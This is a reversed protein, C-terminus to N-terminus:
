CNGNGVITRGELQYVNGATLRMDSTINAPLACVNTSVETTGQPCGAITQNPTGVSGDLTWGAWWASSAAPDVAGIFDTADLFSADAVSEPLSDNIAAWDLPASLRAASAQSAGLSNLDAYVANVNASANSMDVTALIGQDGSGNACDQIWNNFYLSSGVNAEAGDHIRACTTFTNDTESSVTIVSNHFFGASTKKFNLSFEAEGAAKDAVVTLNAVTPKSLFATTGETDMEFAEGASNATQKVFVYQLNGQYGEDWDVSDDGAGTVVLHKINANGGYFEVGDDLNDNIQIYDLVTGGGVANLSLGNIEDGTSLETGGETIVVYKLTGSSDAANDGGIFNVAGEGDVNCPTGDCANHPAFGSLQIGGWEGSGDYNDDSASSFIIPAAATGVAVLKSGRNVDLVAANLPDSSPLGKVEVGAEITLTVNLVADGNTCTNSDSLECNGNGVIVRGDLQYENGAVLTMDSVIRGSLSCVGTSVETTGSPCADSAPPETPTDTGSNGSGSGSNDITPADINITASDGESCGGLGILAGSAILAIVFQKNM